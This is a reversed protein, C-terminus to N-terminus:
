SLIYDGDMLSNYLITNIQYEISSPEPNTDGTIYEIIKKDSEIGLARFVIFITIDIHNSDDGVTKEPNSQIKPITM